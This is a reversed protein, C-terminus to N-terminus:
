LLSLELYSVIKDVDIVYIIEDIEVNLMSNIM